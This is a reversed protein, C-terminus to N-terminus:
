VSNQRAARPKEFMVKSAHVILEAAKIREHVVQEELIGDPAYKYTQSDAYLLKIHDIIPAIANHQAAAVLLEQETLSETEFAYVKKLYVRMYTILRQYIILGDSHLELEITFAHLEQLAQQWIPLKNKYRKYLFVGLAIVCIISITALTILAVKFTTTHWFPVHVFSYIDYIEDQGVRIM